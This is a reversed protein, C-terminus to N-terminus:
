SDEDNGQQLVAQANPLTIRQIYTTPVPKRANTTEVTVVLEVALVQSLEDTTLGTVSTSLRSGDPGYYKFVPKSTQVGRALVRTTLHKRCEQTALVATADCYVYGDHGPDVVGPTSPDADTPTQAAETLVGTDVGSTGVTYTVRTPGVKNGANDINAYFAVSTDKGQMFADIDGCAVSCAAILQSPKVATRLTQSLRETATRADEIQDQRNTNKANTYTFGIALTATAAVIIGLVLMVITLEVITTGRDPKGALARRVTGCM